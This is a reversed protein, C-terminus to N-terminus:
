IDPIDELEQAEMRQLVALAKELNRKKVGTLERIDSWFFPKGQREKKLKNCAWVIRRAWNGEYSETYKEFVARCKPLRELAHAPLNLERYVRRESVREPRGIESASGDYIERAIKELVPALEEDYSSWDCSTKSRMYHSAQEREIQDETVKPNTLDEVSLGLFFGIQCVVSFDFREGLLTRQLQCFTAASEGYFARMDEALRKTFHMNGKMSRYPTGKMAEYLVVSIPIDREVDMPAHFVNTVYEAFEQSLSDHNIRAEGRVAYEEAPCLTYTKESKATVTSNEL